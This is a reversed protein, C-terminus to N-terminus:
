MVCIKAELFKADSEEHTVVVVTRNHRYIKLYEIMSQKTDIDMGKFPEDMFIVEGDALLARVIAVRRKMGGSLEEVPVYMSELLGVIDLHHKIMSKTVNKRAAMWINSYASFRKCLRDEQFVASYADPIGTIHGAEVSTLGMMCRLLTTKGQGSPGMLCTIKHERFRLNIGTFIQKEGYLKTVNNVCIDM